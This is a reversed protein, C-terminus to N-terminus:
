QHRFLRYNCSCMNCQPSYHMHHLSYRIDNHDSVKSIDKALEDLKKVRVHIIVMVFFLISFGVALLVTVVIGAIPGAPHSYLLNNILYVYIYM